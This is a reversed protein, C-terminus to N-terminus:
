PSPLPVFHPCPKGWATTQEFQDGRAALAAVRLGPRSVERKALGFDLIKVQNDEDIM